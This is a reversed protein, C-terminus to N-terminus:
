REYTAAIKTPSTKTPIRATIDRSMSAKMILNDLHKETADYQHRGELYLYQVPPRDLDKNSFSKRWTALETSLAKNTEPNLDTGPPILHSPVPRVGIVQQGTKTHAIHPYFFAGSNAYKHAFVSNALDATDHQFNHTPLQERQLDPAMQRTVKTAVAGVDKDEAGWREGAKWKKIIELQGHFGHGYDRTEKLDKFTYPKGVEITPYNKAIYNPIDKHELNHLKGYESHIHGNSLSKAMEFSMAYTEISPLRGHDHHTKINQSSLLDAHYLHATEHYHTELARDPPLWEKQFLSGTLKKLIQQASSPKPTTPAETSISYRNQDAYATVAFARTTPTGTNDAYINQKLYESREKAKAELPNPQQHDIKKLSEELHEPSLLSRTNIVHHDFPKTILDPSNHFTPIPVGGERKFTSIVNKEITHLEKIGSM